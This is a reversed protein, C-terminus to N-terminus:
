DSTILRGVCISHSPGFREADSLERKRLKTLRFPFLHRKKVERQASYQHTRSAGENFIASSSRSASACTLTNSGTTLFVEGAPNSISSHAFELGGTQGNRMSRRRLGRSCNLARVGVVEDCVHRLGKTSARSIKSGSCSPALQLEAGYARTVARRQHLRVRVTVGLFAYLTSQHAQSCLLLM